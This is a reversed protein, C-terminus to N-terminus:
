IDYGSAQSATVTPKGAKRKIVLPRIFGDGPYRVSLGDPYPFLAKIEEDTMTAPFTYIETVVTEQDKGTQRFKPAPLEKM